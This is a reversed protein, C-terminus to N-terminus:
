RGFSMPNDDQACRLIVATANARSYSCLHKAEGLM